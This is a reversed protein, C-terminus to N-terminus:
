RIALSPAYPWIRLSVWKSKSIKDQIIHSACSTYMYQVLNTCPLSITWCFPSLVSHPTNWKRCRTIPLVFLCDLPRCLCEDVEVAHDLAVLRRRALELRQLIDVQLISAPSNTATIPLDPLPLVVSILMIVPMSRGVGPSTTTAPVGTCLSRSPWSAMQRPRLMPTTKWNKWSSGVSVTTSFTMSGISKQLMYEGRSRVSRAIVQELLDLHGVLGVLQGGSEGAALLLADGDGAREGVVRRDDDGVLRGAVQVRPGGICDEVQELAQDVAALRDDHDRM